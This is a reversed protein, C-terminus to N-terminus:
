EEDSGDESDDGGTEAGSDAGGGMDSSDGGGMETGTDNNADSGMDGGEVDSSDGMGMDSGADPTIGEDQAALGIWKKFTEFM